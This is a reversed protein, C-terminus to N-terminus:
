CCGKTTASPAVAGAAAAKLAGAALRQPAVLGAAAAGRRAALPGRAALDPLPARGALLRLLM